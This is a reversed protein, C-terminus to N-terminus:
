SQFVLPASPFSFFCISLSPIFKNMSDLPSLDKFNRDSSFKMIVSLLPLSSHIWCMEPHLPVMDAVIYTSVHFGARIPWVFTRWDSSLIETLVFIRVRRLHWLPMVGDVRNTALMSCGLGGILLYPQGFWFLEGRKSDSDLSLQPPCPSAKLLCFNWVSGLEPYFFFM